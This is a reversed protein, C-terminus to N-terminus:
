GRFTARARGRITRRGVLVGIVVGLALLGAGAAYLLWDDGGETPTGFFQGRVAGDPFETTAVNLYFGDPHARLDAVVSAPVDSVCGSSPGESSPLPTLNLLVPGTRGATGERVQVATVEAMDLVNLGFCVQDPGPTVMSLAGRANPDGAGTAGDSDLVNNGFVAAFLPLVDPAERATALGHTALGAVLVTTVILFARRM